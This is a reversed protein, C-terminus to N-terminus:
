SHTREFTLVFQSGHGHFLHVNDCSITVEHLIHLMDVVPTGKGRSYYIVIDHFLGFIM